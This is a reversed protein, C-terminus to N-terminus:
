SRARETRGKIYALVQNVITRGVYRRGTDANAHLEPAGEPLHLYATHELAKAIVYIYRAAEDCSIGLPTEASAPLFTVSDLDLEIGVPMGKGKEQLYSVGLGIAEEWTCRCRIKIDEYSCYKFGAARLGELIARSNYSEHLGLVYYAKLTGEQQSYTFGNGSHRGECPRFDAHPDCNICSLAGAQGLAVLADRVGKQIPYANNHGGGVVIPQLGAEVIQRIIPAVRDDLQATLSRLKKLDENKHASLGQAARQLDDVEISGLLLVAGADIFQNSQINLFNNVFADWAKDSGGRGCNARAGVDEPIGLIAYRQGAAVRKKLAELLPTAGSFDASDCSVLAQGLKTEGDRISTRTRLDESSYVRLHGVTHM